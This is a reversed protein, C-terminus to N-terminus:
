AGETKGAYKVLDLFDSFNKLFSYNKCGKETMCTSASFFQSFPTLFIFFLRDLMMLFIPLSTIFILLPLNCVETITTEIAARSM